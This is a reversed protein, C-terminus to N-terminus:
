SLHVCTLLSHFIYLYPPNLRYRCRSSFFIKLLRPNCSATLVSLWPSPSLLGCPPQWLSGPLFHSLSLLPLLSPASPPCWLTSFAPLKPLWKHQTGTVDPVAQLVFCASFILLISFIEKGLARELVLFRHIQGWVFTLSLWGFHWDVKYIQELSHSCCSNSSLWEYWITHTGAILHGNQIVLM